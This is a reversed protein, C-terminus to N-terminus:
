GNFHGKVGNIVGPIGGKVTDYQGVIEDGNHVFVTPTTMIRPTGEPINQRTINVYELEFDLDKALKNIHPHLRTCWSCNDQEFVVVKTM